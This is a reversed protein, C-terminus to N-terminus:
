AATAGKGSGDGVEVVKAGGNREPRGKVMSRTRVGM